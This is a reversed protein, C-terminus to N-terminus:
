NYINEISKYEILHIAEKELESIESLTKIHGKIIEELQKGPDSGPTEILNEQLAELQNVIEKYIEIVKEATRIRDSENITKLFSVASRRSDLLINLIVFNIEMREALVKLDSSGLLEILKKIWLDYASFGSKYTEYNGTKALQVATKLSNVLLKDMDLANDKEGIFFNLWPAHEALSYDETEDFYTRCLIGPKNKLYGTIIGWDPCEKLNIAVIPRGLDIQPRIKGYLSRIDKFSNDDITVFEANYGLSKFLIRSVDFGVTADASSPCWDPHFHLRFAAGSIGMLFDYTYDEGLANLSLQVSRVFTNDMNEGYRMPPINGIYVRESTEIIESAM